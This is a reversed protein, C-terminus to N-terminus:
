ARRQKDENPRGSNALGGAYLKQALFHADLDVLPHNTDSDAVAVPARQQSSAPKGLIFADGSLSPLRAGGELLCLADAVGESAEQQLARVLAKSCRQLREAKLAAATWDLFGLM